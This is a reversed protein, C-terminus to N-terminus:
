WTTFFTLVLGRGRFQDLRAPAGELTEFTVDPAPVPPAVRLAGMAALADRQSPRALLPRGGVAAATAALTVLVHRRSVTPNM